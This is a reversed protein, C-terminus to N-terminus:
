RDQPSQLLALTQKAQSSFLISFYPNVKLALGLYQRARALDNLQYSIMGAHYLKLADHTGLKLSQESYSRAQAYSGTQYLAWALVDAGYISPRRDYAQRAQALTAAPDTAHDADFLAIELDLDVGNAQYLKQIAHVLSYEKQAAQAQGSSQYADGLSIIIDPIPMIQSARTLYATAQDWSQQAARVRGLGALAYIYNPYGQLTAQYELEAQNLDGMNFYLNGLQTRTWATNELQPEGADVAMQMAQVASDTQGYLERIYSVRSYSSMDPRLNVMSQLTQVAAEYRGLEIQADTIVGYAYSNNPNLARARLGWELADAFQHRALALAGMGGVASYDDPNIAIVKKFVAEVKPYYSPDGTERTKQLYALGLQSYSALDDPVTKLHAQLSQITEDTSAGMRVFNNPFFSQALNPDVPLAQAPQAFRWSAVALGALVILLLPMRSWSFSKRIFAPMPFSKRIFAAM